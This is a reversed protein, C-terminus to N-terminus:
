KDDDESGAEPDAAADAGAPRIETHRVQGGLHATWGVLMSVAVAAALATSGFWAPATKGSRSLVLGVAGVVGLIVVGTFAIAAAEEHKEVIAESVGPLGKVSDEAPEGTLYVPASLIAVAVFFGFAVRKLEDSKRWGSLGLLALGVISGFVPVHNLILHIHTASM